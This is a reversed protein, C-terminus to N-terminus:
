SLASHCVSPGRVARAEAGAVRAMTAAPPDVGRDGRGGATVGSVGAGRAWVGGDVWGHYRSADRRAQRM